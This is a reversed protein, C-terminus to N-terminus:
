VTGLSPASTDGVVVPVGTSTTLVLAVDLRFDVKVVPDIDVDVDVEVEVTNSTAAEPPPPTLSIGLEEVAVVGGPLVSPATRPPDLRPALRLSLLYTDKNSTCLTRQGCTRTTEAMSGERTDDDGSNGEEGTQEEQDPEQNAPSVLVLVDGGVWPVIM